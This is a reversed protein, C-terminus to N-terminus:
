HRQQAATAGFGLWQLDIEVVLDRVGAVELARLAAHGFGLYESGVM